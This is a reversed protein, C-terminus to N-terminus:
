NPSIMEDDNDDDSMEIYNYVDDDIEKEWQRHLTSEM